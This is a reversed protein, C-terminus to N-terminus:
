KFFYFLMGPIHEDNFTIDLTHVVEGEGMFSVEFTGEGLAELESPIIEGASKVKVEVNGEGAHDALVSFTFFVMNITVM